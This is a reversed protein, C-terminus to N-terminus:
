IRWKYVPDKYNWLPRVGWIAECYSEFMDWKGIGNFCDLWYYALDTLFDQEPYVVADAFKHDNPNIIAKIMVFQEFWKDGPMNNVTSCYAFASIANKGLTTLEM